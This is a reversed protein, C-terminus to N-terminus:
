FICFIPEVQGSPGLVAECLLDTFFQLSLSSQACVKCLHELWLRKELKSDGLIIKRGSRTCLIGSQTCLKSKRKPKAIRNSLMVFCYRSVWFPWLKSKSDTIVFTESLHVRFIDYYHLSKPDPAGLAMRITLIRLRSLVHAGIGFSFMLKFWFRESHSRPLPCAYFTPFRLTQAVQTGPDGSRLVAPVSRLCRMPAAIVTTQVGLERLCIDICVYFADFQCTQPRRYPPARWKSTSRWIIQQLLLQCSTCAWALTVM